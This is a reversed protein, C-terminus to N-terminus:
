RPVLAAARTAMASVRAQIPPINILDNIVKMNFKDNRHRVSICIFYMKKQHVLFLLVSPLSYESEATKMLINVVGDKKYNISFEKNKLYYGEVTDNKILSKISDGYFTLSINTASLTDLFYDFESYHWSIASYFINNTKETEHFERRVPPLSSLNNVTKIKTVFVAYKADYVFDSVPNRNENDDFHTEQYTINADNKFLNRYEHPIDHIVIMKSLRNGMGHIVGYFKYVAFSIIAISIILGAIRIGLYKKM